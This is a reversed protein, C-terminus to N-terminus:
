AHPPGRPSAISRWQPQSPPGTQGVASWARGPAPLLMGVAEVRPRSLLLPPLLPALRAAVAFERRPALSVEYSSASFAPGQDGLHEIPRPPVAQLCAIALLLTATFRLLFARAPMIM